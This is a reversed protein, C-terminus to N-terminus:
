GKAKARAKLAAEWCNRLWSKEVENLMLEVVVGERVPYVEWGADGCFVFGEGLTYDFVFISQEGYQNEFYGLYRRTPTQTIRPPLKEGPTHHNSVEFIVEGEAARSIRLEQAVKASTLKHLQEALAKQEQWSFPNNSYASM